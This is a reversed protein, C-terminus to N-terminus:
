ACTGAHSFGSGGNLGQLAMDPSDVYFLSGPHLHDPNLQTVQSPQKVENYRLKNMHLTTIIITGSWCM